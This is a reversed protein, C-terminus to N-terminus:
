HKTEHTGYRKAKKGHYTLSYAWGHESGTFSRDVVEIKNNKLFNNIEQELVELDRSAFFKVKDTM